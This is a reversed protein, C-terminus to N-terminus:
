ELDVRGFVPETKRIFKITAPNLHTRDRKPEIEKSFLGKKVVVWYGVKKM